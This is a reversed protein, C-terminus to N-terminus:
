PAAPTEQPAAPAEVFATVASVVQSDFPMEAPQGALSALWSVADAVDRFTKTPAQRKTFLAWTAIFSRTIVAAMGKSQVVIASGVVQADYKADLEASRERVGAGPTELKVGTVVVLTSFRPFAAAHKTECAELVELSELTAGGDFHMVLLSRLAGVRLGQGEGLVTVGM